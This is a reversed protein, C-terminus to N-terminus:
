TRLLGWHKTLYMCKLPRLVASFEVGIYINTLIEIKIPNTFFMNYLFSVQPCKRPFVYITIKKNLYDNKHFRSHFATTVFLIM